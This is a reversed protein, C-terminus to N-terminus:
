PTFVATQRIWINVPKGYRDRAPTFVWQRASRVAADDLLPFGSSQRVRALAVTGDKKLWLSLVVSGQIRETRASEPYAVSLEGLPEPMSDAAMYETTEPAPHEDDYTLGFKFTFPRQITVPVPKGDSTLAPRYESERAATLAAEDLLPSGASREIRASRVKGNRDVLFNVVATGEVGQERAQAPYDPSIERIPAPMVAPDVTKQLYKVCGASLAMCALLTLAPLHPSRSQASKRFRFWSLTVM